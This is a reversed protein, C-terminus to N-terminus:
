QPQQLLEYGSAQWANFGGDLEYLNNYGLNVLTEAAETSMRGSRCYLVIAADKAPLKDTYQEIEDFPIFLDTQPLEGEYPIHVNVLVFDKEEMMQALQAPALDVYGDANRAAAQEGAAGGDPVSASSAPSLGPAQAGSCAALVWALILTLAFMAQKKM